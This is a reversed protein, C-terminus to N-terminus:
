RSSLHKTESVWRDEELTEAVDDRSWKLRRGPALIDEKKNEEFIFLYTKTRMMNQQMNCDRLRARDSLMGYGHPYSAITRKLGHM